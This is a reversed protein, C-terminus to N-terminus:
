PSAKRLYKTMRLSTGDDVQEFEVEDMLSRILKLGWGRREDASEFDADSKNSQDLSQRTPVVGRSSITVVLKDDEVRFRQYIKRDPSLSHEAANICAEVIATKIQNIAETRFSSRRAIQEVLNAALLENDAGMPWIAVFEDDDAMPQSVAPEGVRAALLEVQQRNMGYAGRLELLACADDTFGENSILVIRVRPFLLERALGEIRELWVETLDRDVELKADVQAAIWVILNADTYTAGEFAHAVACSEDDVLQPLQRSFASYSANHFVQPLRILDTEADLGTLIEDASAGRYSEKFRDYHFLIRPALQSNFEAFLKRLALRTASRYHRAMTHPARKLADAITEAVVLARSDNQVDLRFRIKVYDKWCGPGGGVEIFGDSRNILEHVHLLALMRDLEGAELRLLKRWAEFSAKRQDSVAAEALLRILARRIEPKPAAAELLASFHRHLHGGMLEDVFLKECALYSTLAMGKEHAAQLLMATFLPSADFQQVLLDRTQDNLEVRQRKAALEVLKRAENEGLPALRLMEFSELVSDIEHAARLLHRRLGAVVFSQNARALTNIIEADLSWGTDQDSAALGVMDIMLYPRGNSGPVRQPASLCFRVLSEDDKTFRTQEYTELLAEMWEYDAPPALKLLDRLVLSANCITPDNRQYAVYHTLFTNLFAIAMSVATTDSRPITFFIPIIEGRRSFLEDYAQRLLESIGATPALLVLLGLPGESRDAHSVIKDLERGRGVFEDRTVRGLIRRRPNQTESRNM